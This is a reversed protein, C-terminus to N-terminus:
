RRRVCCMGFGCAWWMKKCLLTLQRHVLGVGPLIHGADRLKRAQLHPKLTGAVDHPLHDRAVNVNADDTVVHKALNCAVVGVEHHQM